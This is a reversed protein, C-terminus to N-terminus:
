SKISVAIDNVLEHNCVHWPKPALSTVKVGRSRLMFVCGLSVGVFWCDVIKEESCSTRIIQFRWQWCTCNSAPPSLFSESIGARDGFGPRAWGVAGNTNENVPCRDRWKLPDWLMGQCLARGLLAPCQVATLCLFLRSFGCLGSVSKKKEVSIPCM